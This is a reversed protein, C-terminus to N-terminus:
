SNDDPAVARFRSQRNVTVTEDPGVVKLEGNRRIESLQFDPEVEVGADIAAKLIESGTMRNETV